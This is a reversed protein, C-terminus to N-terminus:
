SEQFSSVDYQVPFFINHVIPFLINSIRLATIKSNIDSLTNFKLWSTSYIGFVTQSEDVVGDVGSANEKLAM